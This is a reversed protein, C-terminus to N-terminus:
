IPFSIRVMMLERLLILLGTDGSELEPVIGIQDITISDGRGIVAGQPIMELVNALAEKRASAYQANINKKQLNKV